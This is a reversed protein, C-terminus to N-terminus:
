YLSHIKDHNADYLSALVRLRAETSAVTAVTAITTSLLHMIHLSQASPKPKALDVELARKSLMGSLVLWVEHLM